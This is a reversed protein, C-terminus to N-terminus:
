LWKHVFTMAPMELVGTPAGEFAAPVSWPCSGHGGVSRPLGNFYKLTLSFEGSNAGNEWLEIAIHSGYTPWSPPSHEADLGDLQLLLPMLTVDHGSYVTMALDCSSVSRHGIRRHVELAMDRLLDRSALELVKPHAYYQQFRWLLYREAEECYQMLSALSPPVQVDNLHHNYCTLVDSAHFWQWPVRRNYPAAGDDDHDQGVEAFCPMSALVDRLPGLNHQAEHERFAASEALASCDRQIRQHRSFMDIKCNKADEVNM